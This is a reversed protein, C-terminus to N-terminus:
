KSEPKKLKKKQVNKQGTIPSRPPKIIIKAKKYNEIVAKHMQRASRVEILKEVKPINLATPGSILTVQAGRRKAATALAYGMKGSSLNTIHRVPDFPEQTPGATILIKVGALDKVTFM